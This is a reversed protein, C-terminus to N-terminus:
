KQMDGFCWRAARMAKPPALLDIVPKRATLSRGEEKESTEYEELAKITGECGTKIGEKLNAHSWHYIVNGYNMNIRILKTEGLDTAQSLYHSFIEIDDDSINDFPLMVATLAAEIM